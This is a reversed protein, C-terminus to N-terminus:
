RERESERRWVDRLRLSNSVVSVSSFAMAAAAFMPNLFVGFLPYLAGAAVPIGLSNYFFAWFLNQKIIKMTVSSLGIASPVLTLDDKVLTIDSAEKAIDTGTGISIGVDAEALAPADNIGDGVMAVVGGADRLKRIERTKDQPLVEAVIKDIGTERGIAAAAKRRDGTIMVIDLGSKKLRRIAEKASDKVSDSLAIVGTLLGGSAVFALTKGSSILGDAEEKMTDIVINEETMLTMNGLLVSQDKMFGRVGKGPVASFGEIDAPKIGERNGVELIAAALPHESVAELSVATRLLDDRLTGPSPMIDTVRPAGMTLTGTKDFVVTDIQYTKELVEGGKILIGQEAGLGTGVMVATPTALGMACPCAIVLVSVFNLLARSFIPEPVIYYWIVFTAVAITIVVPVFVSAVKDAFRQIPAKSGQAEEVLKIIQALMTESGVKTTEYVISGSRNVTGAFVRSGEHKEVPISEGTLMSEDVTSRGKVVTGDTPIREGPRVRVSDGVIVAEVSVDREEGNKVVHAIIPRLEVLNKIAQSTKGKARAELLRGLLVLTVIMAAGDFYVHPTTGTGAFVRPWIVAVASYIYASLAGLAVLTNMDSTKQRLAKFAGVIFLSGVWFVVPTSLLLLLYHMVPRPIFSLFPFWHQMSGMFTLVSLVIGAGVRITLYKLESRRAEEIPDRMEGEFRGLFEYGAERIVDAIDSVTVSEGDHIVTARSTALNVQADRVGRMNQLAQEVRRVCAACAMGGVVVTTREIGGKEGMVSYGIDEIARV